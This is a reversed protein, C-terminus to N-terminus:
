QTAGVTLIKKVGDPTPMANIPIGFFQHGPRPDNEDSAASRLANAVLYQNLNIFESASSHQFWYVGYGDQNKAGELM